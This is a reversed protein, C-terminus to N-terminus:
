FIKYKLVSLTSWLIYNDLLKVYFKVTNRELFSQRSNYTRKTSELANYRIKNINSSAMYFLVDLFTM